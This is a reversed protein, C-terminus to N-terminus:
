MVGAYEFEMASLSLMVEAKPTSGSLELVAPRAAATAPLAIVWLLTFGILRHLPTM